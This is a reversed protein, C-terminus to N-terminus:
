KGKPKLNLISCSITKNEIQIKNSYYSFREAIKKVVFLEIQKFILCMKFINKAIKLEKKDCTSTYFKNLYFNLVVKRLLFFLSCM